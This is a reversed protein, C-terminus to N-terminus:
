IVSGKQIIYDFAVPIKERGVDNLAELDINILRKIEPWV